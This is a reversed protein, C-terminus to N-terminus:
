LAKDRVGGLQSRSEGKSKVAGALGALRSLAQSLADVQDDNSANPFAACEEVLQQVWGPTFTRDYDSGDSSAAGPLFVNGSEIEPAVARARAVKGGLPGPDVAILGPVTRRLTSIVAPGNAKDEVLKAHGRHKPLRDEVWATLEQVAKVTETFELKARVQHLLYKDAFFRGWVQGVVYDSGDTDKFAMDWSQVVEHFHPYEEPGWGPPFYRWWKRKLIGGEEPAPRQQLQGASKYSGMQRKLRDLERQGVREPWLLEGQESRPDDPWVFPHKPEYEAPLCLHVWEGVGADQALVHGTLDSEHLRQMILVEAGTKPDNFRSSMTGDHWEIVGERVTDSEAEDAKHPDDIVIIDGGEGTATGGVSTALRYGARTNEFRTKANQDGTLQWADDGYLLRLLGQYGIREVLTRGAGGRTGESQILRRCKLSDRTSLKEGYSAYLFRTEAGPKHAGSADPGLWEWAPWFVATSLSKMHRPPINIALRLIERRSVMELHEAIAEIHWNSVFQRGPEVLQWAQRTFYGLETRCREAQVSSLSPLVM